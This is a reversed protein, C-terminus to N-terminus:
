KKSWIIFRYNFLIITLNVFIARLKMVASFYISHRNELNDIPTEFLSVILLLYLLLRETNTLTITRKPTKIVASLESNIQAHKDSTLRRNGRWPITTSPAGSDTLYGLLFWVPSPIDLDAAVSVKERGPYSCAIRKGRTSLLM